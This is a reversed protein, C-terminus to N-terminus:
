REGRRSDSGDLASMEKASTCAQISVRGQLAEKFAEENEVTFGIRRKRGSLTLVFIKQRSPRKGDFPFWTRFDGTGWIRWSGGSLGAPLEYVADILQLDVRRSAWDARVPFYYRKLVIEDTTLRILGDEYIVQGSNRGQEM